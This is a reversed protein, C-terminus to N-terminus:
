PQWLKEKLVCDQQFNEAIADVTIITAKLQYSRFSLNVDAYMANIDEEDLQLIFRIDRVSRHSFCRSWYM